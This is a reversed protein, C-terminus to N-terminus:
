LPSVAIVAAGAILACGISILMDDSVKWKSARAKGQREARRHLRKACEYAGIVIGGCTAAALDHVPWQHIGDFLPYFVRGVIFATTGLVIYRIHSVLKVRFNDVVLLGGFSGLAISSVTRTRESFSASIHSVVFGVGIIGFVNATAIFEKTLRARLARFPTGFWHALRMTKSHERGDEEYEEHDCIENGDAGFVAVPIEETGPHNTEKENEDDAKGALSPTPPTRRSLRM